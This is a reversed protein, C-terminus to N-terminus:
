AIQISMDSALQRRSFDFQPALIFVLAYIVIIFSSAIILLAPTITGKQTFKDKIM